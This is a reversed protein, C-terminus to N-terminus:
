KAKIQKRILCHNGLAMNFINAPFRFARASVPMHRTQRVTCANNAIPTKCYNLSMCGCVVVAAVLLWM